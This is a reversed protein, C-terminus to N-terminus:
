SAGGVEAKPRTKLNKPKIISLLKSYGSCPIIMENEGLSVTKPQPPSFRYLYRPFPEGEEKRLTPEEIMDKMSFILRSSNGLLIMVTANNLVGPIVRFPKASSLAIEGEGIKEIMANEDTYENGDKLHFTLIARLKNM